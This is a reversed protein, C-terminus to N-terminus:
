PLALHDIYRDEFGPALNLEVVASRGRLTELEEWLSRDLLALFAGALAANGVVRVVGPDIPPLLGVAIANAVDLHLGFGGALYM